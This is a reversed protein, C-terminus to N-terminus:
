AHQRYTSQYNADHRMYANDDNVLIVGGAVAAQVTSQAKAADVKSLRMGARLLLSYGFKKWKDINAQMCFM